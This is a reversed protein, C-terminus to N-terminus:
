RYSVGAFRPPLVNCSTNNFSQPPLPLSFFVVVRRELLVKLETVFLSHAKEMLSSSEARGWAPSAGALRGASSFHLSFIENVLGGLAPGSSAQSM